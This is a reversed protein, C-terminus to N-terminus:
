EGNKGGLARVLAAIFQPIAKLVATALQQSVCFLGIGSVTAAAQWPFGLQTLFFGGGFVASGLISKVWQTKRKELPIEQRAKMAPLNAVTKHLTM